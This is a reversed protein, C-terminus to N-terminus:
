KAEKRLQAAEELLKRGAAKLLEAKAPGYQKAFDGLRHAASELGSAKLGTVQGSISDVDSTGVLEMIQGITQMASVHELNLEDHEKIAQIVATTNASLRTALEKVMESYIGIETISSAYNRALSVLESTSMDILRQM